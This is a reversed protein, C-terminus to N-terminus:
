LRVHFVSKRCGFVINLTDDSLADGTMANGSFPGIDDHKATVTDKMTEFNIRAGLLDMIVIIYISM